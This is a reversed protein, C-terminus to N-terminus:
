WKMWRLSSWIRYSHTSYGAARLSQKIARDRRIAYPTYDRNWTVGTAGTERLLAILESLPEGRRVVLYLGLTRLEADLAALCDLLFQTRAPSAFRGSLIADDFIFVPVVAGGAAHAAAILATNDRLRLDRRFWHILM